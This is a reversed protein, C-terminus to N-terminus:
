SGYIAIHGSGDSSRFGRYMGESNFAMSVRGKADVGIMGGEGSIDVLKGMVTERMAEELSLGKYLMRAHVDYAAVAKLFLEGHGTCSIACTSNDAWTGAGIVPSDGVRGFQKNTMGGTSTAAALRGHIDRAVAGVTGMKNAGQLQTATSHDLVSIGSDKVAQWQQYRFDTHFYDPGEMPVGCAKAFAMAGEGSLLVHPTQLMVERALLIPNRVGRVGAVAGAALDDGRMLSADMEHSGEQTFVSGKGANFLPNDELSVTAAIVADMASGGKELLRYGADVAAQLGDRYARERDPSMASRLITGAGGHIAISIPIM